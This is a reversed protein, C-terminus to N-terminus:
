DNFKEGLKLNIFNIWCQQPLNCKKTEKCFHSWTYKDTIYVPLTRLPCLRFSKSLIDAIDDILEQKQLLENLQLAAAIKELEVKM